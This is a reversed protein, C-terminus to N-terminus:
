VREEKRPSSAPPPCSFPRPVGGRCPPASPLFLADCPRAFPRSPSACLRFSLECARGHCLSLRCYLRADRRDPCAPRCSSIASQGLLPGFEFGAGAGARDSTAGEHTCLYVASGVQNTKSEQMIRM